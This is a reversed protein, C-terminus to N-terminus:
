KVQQDRLTSDTSAASPAASPAAGKAAMIDKGPGNIFHDGKINSFLEEHDVSLEQFIM